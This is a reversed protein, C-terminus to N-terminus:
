LHAPGLFPALASLVEPTAKMARIMFEKIKQTASKSPKGAKVRLLERVFREVAAQARGKSQQQATIAATGLIDKSKEPLNVFAAALDVLDPANGFYHAWDKGHIDAMKLKGYVSALKKIQMAMEDDESM